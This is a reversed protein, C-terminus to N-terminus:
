RGSSWDPQLSLIAREAECTIRTPMVRGHRATAAEVHAVGRASPESNYMVGGSGNVQVDTLAPGILRVHLDQIESTALPRVRVVADAAIEMALGPRLAGELWVLDAAVLRTM